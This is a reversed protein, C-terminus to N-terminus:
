TGFGESAKENPSLPGSPSWGEGPVRRRRGCRCSPRRRQWATTTASLRFREFVPVAGVGCSSERHCNGRANVHFHCNVSVRHDAESPPRPRTQALGRSRPIGVCSEDGRTCDKSADAAPASARYFPLSRRPSETQAGPGARCSGPAPGPAGGRRPARAAPRTSTPARSVKEGSCAEHRAGAAARVHPQRLTPWRTM